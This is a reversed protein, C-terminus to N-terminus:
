WPNVKRIRKAAECTKGYNDLRKAIETILNTILGNAYMLCVLGMEMEAQMKNALRPCGKWLMDLDSEM